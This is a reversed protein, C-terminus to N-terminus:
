KANKIVEEFASMYDNQAMVPMSSKIIQMDEKSMGSCVTTELKKALNVCEVKRLKELTTIQRYSVIYELRNKNISNRFARVFQLMQVDSTLKEEVRSDYDVPIIVHYRNMVAKDQQFRGVYQSDAGNGFTNASAVLRFGEEAEHVENDAFTMRKNAVAQNMSLLANPDSGDLEDLLYVAGKPNTFAKYFQSEKFRGQLDITGTITYDEMVSSNTYFEVGLDKAVQACAETKGCGAPGVLLVNLGAKVCELLYDYFAPKIYLNEKHDLKKPEQKPEEKPEPKKTKSSKTKKPKPTSQTPESPSGQPESSGKPKFTSTPVLEGNANIEIQHTELLEKVENPTFQSIDLANANSSVTNVTFKAM